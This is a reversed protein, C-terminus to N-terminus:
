WKANVDGLVLDQLRELPLLRPRGHEGDGLAIASSSKRGLHDVVAVPIRVRDEEEIGCAGDDLVDRPVIQLVGVLANLQVSM